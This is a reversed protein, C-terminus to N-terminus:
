WTSVKWWKALQREAPTLVGKLRALVLDRMVFARAEDPGRGM